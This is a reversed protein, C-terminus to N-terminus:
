CLVRIGKCRVCRGCLRWLTPICPEMCMRPLLHGAQMARNFGMNESHQRRIRCCMLCYSGASEQIHHCNRAQHADCPVWLLTCCLSFLGLETSFMSLVESALSIEDLLPNRKSPLPAGSALATSTAACAYILATHGALTAICDGALTWARLTMDHSGSVFGLGPVECLARVSDTHGEYTRDVVTGSWQKITM